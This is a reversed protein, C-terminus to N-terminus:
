REGPPYSRDGGPSDAPTQLPYAFALVEVPAAGAPRQSADEIREYYRYLVARIEAGLEELEEPTVWWITQSSVAATRWRKPFVNQTAWWRRLREVAREQFMTSLSSLAIEAAPEGEVHETSLDLWGNILRWPRNRGHGGGSEEVFGYKALQRLHFSCNAPSEGVVAAAQTATLEGAIALEEMLAMRVPHALARM